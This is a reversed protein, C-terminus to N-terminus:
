TRSGSVRLGSTHSRSRSRATGKSSGAQARGDSSPAWMAAPTSTPGSPAMRVTLSRTRGAKAWRRSCTRSYVGSHAAAMASTGALVM